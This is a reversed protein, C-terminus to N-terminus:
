AMTDSVMVVYGDGLSPDISIRFWEQLREDAVMGVDVLVEIIPDDVGYGEFTPPKSGSVVTLGFPERIPFAGPDHEITGQAARVLPSADPSRRDASRAPDSRRPLPGNVVLRVHM